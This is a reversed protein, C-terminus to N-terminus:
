KDKSELYRILTESKEKEFKLKEMNLLITSLEFSQVIGEKQVRPIAMSITQKGIFTLTIDEDQFTYIFQAIGNEDNGQYRVIEYNSGGTSFRYNFGDSTVSLTEAFNGSKTSTKIQHHRIASGTLVSEILLTGKETVSARLGNQKLSSQSQRPYIKPQYESLEQYETDHVFNFKQMMEKLLIGNVQMMSDCFFINRKNEAMRVKHMLAIGTNIEDFAKLFVEQISDIKLKALEFNNTKLAEEAETLYTKAQKTNNKCSFFLIIIFFSLLIKVPIRM